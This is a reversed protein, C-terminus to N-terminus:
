AETRRWTHFQALVSSRLVARYDTRRMARQAPRNDRCWRLAGGRANANAAPVQWRSGHLRFQGPAHFLVQAPFTVPGSIDLSALMGADAFARAAQVVRPGIGRHLLTVRLTVTM